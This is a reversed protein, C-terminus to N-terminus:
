EDIVKKKLLECIITRCCVICGGLVTLGIIILVRNPSSPFLPLRAPEIITAIPTEEQLKVRNAAVQTAIQQYIDFALNRENQLRDLQVQALKSVLKQNRDVMTAYEADLAYYNQKAEILMKESNELDMRTKCTHYDIMYRQLKAVLSDAVQMSIEPDQMEATFCYVGSKKDEVARIRNKLLSIFAHQLQPSDYITLSDSQQENRLVWSVINRPLSLLYKWWPYKQCDLIYNEMSIMQGEYNISMDAFELLFPSSSVIEPYLKEGVGTVSSSNLTVGMMGTLVGMSGLSKGMNNGEPAIVVTTSYEKPISFALIIGVFAGYMAWTLVKKRQAWLLKIWLVIDVEKGTSASEM